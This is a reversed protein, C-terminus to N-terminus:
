LNTASSRPQGAFGQSGAPGTGHSGASRLPDRESLKIARDIHRRDHRRFSPGLTSLHSKFGVQLGEPPWKAATTSAAAISRLRSAFAAVAEPRDGPMGGGTQCRPAGASLAGRGRCSSTEVRVDRRDDDTAALTQSCSGALPALERQRDAHVAARVRYRGCAGPPAAVMPRRAAHKCHCPTCMPAFCTGRLMDCTTDAPRRASPSLLQAAQKQVSHLTRGHETATGSTRM